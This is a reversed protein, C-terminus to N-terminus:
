VHARGIEIAYAIAQRVKQNDFPKRSCNFELELIPSDMEYGKTTVSLSPVKSLRRAEINPVAGYAAYTVEGRETAATRTQAEGIFRAVIRDLYPRNPRWYDPNRDFQMYQGRQWEVFKFPGTGIPNNAHPNNQIDTGAFLHKPLM